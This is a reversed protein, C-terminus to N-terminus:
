RSESADEVLPQVATCEPAMRTLLDGIGTLDFTESRTEGDTFDASVTLRTAPPLLRRLFGVAETNHVSQIYEGFTEWEETEVRRDDIRFSIPVSPKSSLNRTAGTITAPPEQLNRTHWAVYVRLERPLLEPSDRLISDVDPWIIHPTGRTCSVSLTATGEEVWFGPGFLYGHQAPKFEWGEQASVPTVALLMIAIIIGRM